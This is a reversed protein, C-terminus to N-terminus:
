GIGRIVSWYFRISSPLRESLRGGRLGDCSDRDGSNRLASTADNAGLM